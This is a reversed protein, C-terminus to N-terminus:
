AVRRESQEHEIYRCEVRVGHMKARAVGEGMGKSMGRDGYVACLDAVRYWALGAEIGLKREGPIDDNLIGPQTFLLHSAIPAEGRQVSDAVCRRAYEINAEVDGAFPSEIIVLRKRNTNAGEVTKRAAVDERWSEVKYTSNRTRFVYDPLQEVVSSTVIVDGDLFRGRTDGYVKGILRDGERYANHLTGVIEM